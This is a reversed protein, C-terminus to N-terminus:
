STCATPFGACFRENRTKTWGNVEEGQTFWVDDHHSRAEAAQVGNLPERPRRYANRDDVAPVVMEKLREEVLDRRRREGGGVDGVRNSRNEPPLLVCGYQQGVRDRDISGCTLEHKGVAPDTEVVQHQRGAHPVGVEPVVGPLRIGRAQLTELVRELDAAPDQEREFAGLPLRVGRFACRASSRSPTWTRVPHGTRSTSAPETSAASPRIAAAVIRQAAPTRPDGRGHDRSTGSSPAPRTRTRGSREMGPSPRMKAIPSTAVTMECVPFGSGPTAGTAIWCPLCTARFTARSRAPRGRRGKRYRSLPLRATMPRACAIASRPRSRIDPNTAHSAHHKM